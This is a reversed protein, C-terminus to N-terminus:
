SVDPCNETTFDYLEITAEAADLVGQHADLMLQWSEALEAPPTVTDVVEFEPTSFEIAQDATESMHFPTFATLTRGAATFDACFQDATPAVDRPACPDVM